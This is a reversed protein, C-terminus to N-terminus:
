PYLADILRPAMDQYGPWFMMGTIGLGKMQHMARVVMTTDHVWAICQVRSGNVLTMEFRSVTAGSFPDYRQVASNNELIEQITDYDPHPWDAGGSIMESENLPVPRGEIWVYNYSPFGPFFRSMLAKNDLMSYVEFVPPISREMVTTSGQTGTHHHAEYMNQVHIDIANMYRNVQNRTYGAGVGWYNAFLFDNGGAKCAEYYVREWMSIWEEGTTGPEGEPVEMLEFDIAVGDAGTAVLVNKLSSIFTDQRGGENKVMYYLDTGILGITPLVKIGLDHYATFDTPILSSSVQGTTGNLSFGYVTAHTVHPVTEPEWTALSGGWMFLSDYTDLSQDHYGITPAAYLMGFLVLAWIIAPKKKQGETVRVLFPTPDMKRRKVLGCIMVLVVAAVIFFMTIPVLLPLYEMNRDVIGRFNVGIISTFLLPTVLIWAKVTGRPTSKYQAGTPRSEERRSPKFFALFYILFGGTSGIYLPFGLWAWIFMPVVLDSWIAWWVLFFGAVMVMSLIIGRKPHKMCYWLVVVAALVGTATILVTDWPAWPRDVQTRQGGPQMVNPDVFSLDAIFGVVYSTVSWTLSFLGGLALYAPIRSGRAGGQTKNVPTSSTKHQIEVLQEGPSPEMGRLKPIITLIPSFLIIAGAFLGYWAALPVLKALRGLMITGMAFLLLGLEERWRTKFEKGPKTTFLPFELVGPLSLCVLATTVYSMYGFLIMITGIGLAACFTVWPIRSDANFLGIVIPVIFGALLVIGLFTYDNAPVITSEISALFGFIFSASTVAGIKVLRTLADQNLKRSLIIITM